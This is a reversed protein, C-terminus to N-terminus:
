SVNLLVQPSLVLEKKDEVNKQGIIFALFKLIHCEWINLGWDLYNQLQLKERKTVSIEKFSKKWV